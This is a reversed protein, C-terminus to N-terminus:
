AGAPRRALLGRDVGITTNIGVSYSLGLGVVHALFAKTRGGSDARVLVRGRVEAPLQALARDLVHLHDAAANANASGPRLLGALPEGGSGTGDPTHDAFATLPHFGFTPRFTPAAQEKESDAVVVTGDLDVPVPGAAPVPLVHRGAVGRAQGRVARLVALAADVDAACSDVLRSVTPDSAVPGFLDPQARVVALAALCDGGLAVAVALDLLIKGPDHRAPRWPRLARSLARDLGTARATELLWAGGVSSVLAEDGSAVRVCGSRKM